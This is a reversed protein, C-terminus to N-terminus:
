KLLNMKKTSTYDATTLKYFYVGSSVQSADWAAVHEGAEEHGNVLTAVLRGSIDYVSLSVNGAEALSYSINTEANFPNPYNQYLVYNTALNAQMSAIETLGDHSAPTRSLRGGISGIKSFYFYSSDIISNAHDGIYAVFTYDGSPDSSTVEEGVDNEGVSDGPDISVDEWLHLPGYQGIGPVFVCTWLDVTITTDSFNFAWRDYYISDGEPPIVIPINHPYLEAIGALDQNFYSAGIDSRTGDPDYLSPNGHDICPSHWRIHFDGREPGVFIPDADINGVGPWGGQVDCYVVAPNGSAVLIQSGGPAANEWLITNTILPSSNLCYIGGGDKEASNSAITNSGIAPNSSTCYVGGGQQCASNGNITNNSIGPNSSSCWIAGGDHENASNNYILNRSITISSSSASCYIGGGSYDATDSHITNHSIVIPNELDNCGVLCIGGGYDSSLNHSITNYTITPSSNQECFIGGGRGGFDYNAENNGITNNSITPRSSGSCSIGGGQLASNSSITNHSIGADSHHCCIAGGNGRASNNCLTCNTLTPSSHDCYIAGGHDDEGDGTAKGYELRCFSMVSNSDAGLFRIGHWGTDPAEATFYISDTEKGVALLTALKDVVFKYHGMFCIEVGPEIVLTSDAPVLIDDVVKYPSYAETWTGWVDGQVDTAKASLPVLVVALLVLLAFRM